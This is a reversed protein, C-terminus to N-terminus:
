NRWYMHGSHVPSDLAECTRNLWLKQCIELCYGHSGIPVVLAEIPARENSPLVRQIRLSSLLVVFSAVNFTSGDKRPQHTRSVGKLPPTSKIKPSAAAQNPTQVIAALCLPPEMVAFERVREVSMLQYM